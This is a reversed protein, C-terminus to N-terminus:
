GSGATLAAHALSTYTAGKSSVRSHYLTAHDVRVRAIPRDTAHQLV